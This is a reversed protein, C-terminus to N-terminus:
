DPNSDRNGLKKLDDTLRGCDGSEVAASSLPAAELSPRRPFCAPRRAYPNLHGCDSREKVIVHRSNKKHACSNAIVLECLVRHLSIVRPAPTSRSKQRDRPPIKGGPRAPQRCNAEFRHLYIAVFSNHTLPAPHIPLFVPRQRCSEVAGCRSQPQRRCPYSLSGMNGPYDYDERRDGSCTPHYYCVQPKAANKANKEQFADLTTSRNPKLDGTADHAHRIACQRLWSTLFSVVPFLLIM